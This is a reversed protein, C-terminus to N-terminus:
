RYSQRDTNHRCSNKKIREKRERERERERERRNKWEENRRNKCIEMRIRM